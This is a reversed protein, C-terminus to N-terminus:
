PPLRGGRERLMQVARISAPPTSVKTGRRSAPTGNRTGSRTENRTASRTRKRTANRTGYSESSAPRRRVRQGPPCPTRRRRTRVGVVERPLGGARLALPTGTDIMTTICSTHGDQDQAPHGESRFALTHRDAQQDHHM